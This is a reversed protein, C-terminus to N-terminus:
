DNPAGATLVYAMVAMAIGLAGLLVTGAWDLHGGLLLPALYYIAAIVVFLVGIGIALSPRRLPHVPKPDVRRVPLEGSTGRVEPEGTM